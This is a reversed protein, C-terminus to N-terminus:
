YTKYIIEAVVVVYKLEIDTFSVSNSGNKQKSHNSLQCGYDICLSRESLKLLM